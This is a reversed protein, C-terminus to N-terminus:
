LEVGITKVFAHQVYPCVSMDCRMWVLFKSFVCSVLFSEITTKPKRKIWKKTIEKKRKKIKYIGVEPELEEHSLEVVVM